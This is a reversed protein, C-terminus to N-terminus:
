DALRQLWNRLAAKVRDEILSGMREDVLRGIADKDREMHQSVAVPLNKHLAVGLATGIAQDILAPLRAEVAAGIREEIMPRVFAEGKTAFQQEVAREVSSAIAPQVQQEIAGAGFAGKVREDVMRGLSDKEQELQRSIAVPLSKHLAVGLASGIAQDIVAPLRADVAAGIREEIMPRVIAEGKAAFQQEVAREVSSAIMPQVQQEIAGAGFAGKVREDVMRSLSDREQELQQGIAIPLSKHLAVGLASQILENIMAPVRADLATGVREDILPRVLSVGRSAIQQEVAKEISGSIAPQVHREIMAPSLANKVQENVLRRIAEKETEFHAGVAAPLNKHMAVGLAPGIADSIMTPLRADLAAGLREDVLPRVLSAGKSAFHEVVAQDVLGAIVPQVQEQIISPLQNALSGALGREIAAPVDRSLYGSVQAQVIGPLETALTSSLKREVATPMDKAILSAVHTQVLIPVQNTLAPSICSEVLGGLNAEVWAKVAGEAAKRLDAESPALAATKPPTIADVAPRVPVAVPPPALPAPAAIDDSLFPDAPSAVPTAQAPKRIDINPSKAPAEPSAGLGAMPPKAFPDSAFNTTPGSQTLEAFAPSASQRRKFVRRSPSEDDSESPMIPQDAPPAEFSSPAPPVGRSYGTGVSAPVGVPPAQRSKSFGGMDSKPAIPDLPAMETLDLIADPAPEAPIRPPAPLPQGFRARRSPTDPSAAPNTLELVANDAGM